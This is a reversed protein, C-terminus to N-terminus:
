TQVIAAVTFLTKFFFDRARFSVAIGQGHKQEVKIIELVNVILKAVGGAVSGKFFERSFQLSRNARAINGDPDAPIFEQDDKWLTRSFFDVCYQVTDSSTFNPEIM